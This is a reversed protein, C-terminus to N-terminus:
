GLGRRNRHGRGACCHSDSPTVQLQAGLLSLFTLSSLGQKFSVLDPAEAVSAPLHNWVSITRPFFSNKHYSTSTSPQHYKKNHDKPRSLAQVIYQNAPIDVLANIIKYLM